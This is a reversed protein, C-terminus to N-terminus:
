PLESVFEIQEPFLVYTDYYPLKADPTLCFEVDYALRPKFLVVMIVGEMGKKLNHEPLDEVLRVRNLLAFNKGQPDWSTIEKESLKINCFPGTFECLYQYPRFYRSRPLIDVISGLAGREICFSNKILVSSKKKINRSFESEKVALILTQSYEIKVLYDKSDTGPISSIITGKPKQILVDKKIIIKNGIKM